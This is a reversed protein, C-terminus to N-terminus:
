AHQPLAAQRALGADFASELHAVIRVIDHTEVVRLRGSDGLQSRLEGDRVLSGIADALAVPDAPPVLLGTGPTVLEPTGGTATAVVPIGYSMAEILAVPIGEHVGRGLDLSPLVVASVPTREYIKLLEHHPVAGLFTVLNTLGFSERLAELQTRLEGQGALWLEVDLGSRRLIRWAELLFRHGKVAVLRAPCLVLPRPGHWRQVQSPIPVGMPLVRANDATGIGLQRAMRLGDRSIFRAFRASRVKAALLNNEVIDWRHATFSWPIGSVQSALMAMSATTGAWHSHIHQARWSQAVEALWLAKPVIALNKIAVGPSRTKLLPLVAAATKGPAALVAAAAAKLIAPSCLAERRACRRLDQGHLIRGTPSRPVVLVQHGAHILQRIEPIVFAEDSGHPLSATVYVIKM